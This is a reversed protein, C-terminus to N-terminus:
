VVEVLGFVIAFGIVAATGALPGALKRSEPVLETTLETLVAGGALALVIAVTHEGAGDLVAFAVASSIGCLLALGSWQLLIARPSLGIDILRGTAVFAEPVGCLFVATIMAPGIHHGSLLGGVIIVAEPVVTVLLSRFSVDIEEDTSGWYGTALLYILSGVILGLGVLGSGGSLRGAEDVLEYAVAAILAGAGFGTLLGILHTSLNSRQRAVGGIVFASGAVLGWGGAGLVGTVRWYQDTLLGIEWGIPTTCATEVGHLIASSSGCRHSWAEPM